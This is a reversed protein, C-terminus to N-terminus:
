GHLPPSTSLHEFNGHLVDSRATILHYRQAEPPLKAFRTRERRAILRRVVEAAIFISIIAGVAILAIKVFM